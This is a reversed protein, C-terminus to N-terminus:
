RLALPWDCPSIRMRMLMGPMLWSGVLEPLPSPSLERSSALYNIQTIDTHRRLPIIVVLNISILTDLSRTGPTAKPGSSDHRHAMCGGWVGGGWVEVRSGVGAYVGQGGRNNMCVFRPRGWKTEDSVIRDFNAVMVIKRVGACVSHHCCFRHFVM